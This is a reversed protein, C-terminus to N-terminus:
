LLFGNIMKPFIGEKKRTPQDGLQLSPTETRPKGLSLNRESASRRTSKKENRKHFIGHPGKWTKPRAMGGDTCPHGKGTANNSSRKRPQFFETPSSSPGFLVPLRSLGGLLLLGDACTSCSKEKRLLLFYFVADFFFCESTRTQYSFVNGRTRGKEWDRNRPTTTHCPAGTFEMQQVSPPPGPPSVGGGRCISGAKPEILPM